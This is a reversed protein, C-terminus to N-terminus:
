IINIPPKMATAINAKTALHDAVADGADIDSQQQQRDNEAANEGANLVRHRCSYFEAYIM